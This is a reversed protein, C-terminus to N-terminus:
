SHKPIFKFEMESLLAIDTGAEKLDIDEEDYYWQIVVPIGAQLLRKLDSFIDYFFKASSSNFYDMDVQFHFPNDTTFSKNKGELIEGIFSNIWQTVPYYLARVDEPTSTGRISFHNEEPSFNIEPSTVTPSIYLKEM